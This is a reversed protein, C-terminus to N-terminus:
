ILSSLNIKENNDLEIIVGINKVFPLVSDSNCTQIDGQRQYTFSSDWNVFKGGDWVDIALFFFDNEPLSDIKPVLVVEVTEGSDVPYGIASVTQSNNVIWGEQDFFSFQESILNTREPNDFFRARFHVRQNTMDTNEYTFYLYQDFTANCQQFFSKSDSFVSFNNSSSSGSDIEIVTYYVVSCSIESKNFPDYLVNVTQNEGVIFGGDTIDQNDVSFIEADNLTDVQLVLNNLMIDSYFSVRVNYNRAGSFTNTLPFAVANQFVGQTEQLLSSESDLFTSTISSPVDDVPPLFPFDTTDLRIGLKFNSGQSDSLVSLKNKEIIEFDNEFDFSNNSNVGFIIEGNNKKEEATLIVKKIASPLVINETFFYAPINKHFRGTICNNDLDIKATTNITDLFNDDTIGPILFLANDYFGDFQSMQQQMLFLVIKMLFVSSTEGMLNANDQELFQVFSDLQAHTLIGKNLLDNHDILGLNKRNVKGEIIKSADIGEINASTLLGKTESQLDIKSPLGRHKHNDVLDKIQQEIPLLDRSTNDIASVSNNGTSIFGVLISNTAEVLNPSFFFSVSRNQATTQFVKAYVYFDQNPTLGNLITPVSTQAAIGNIIGIGESIFISIGDTETFGNRNIEWGNIVGNGVVSYLGFIQRDITLFRDVEHQVNIASSINDGFDFIALNLLPTFSAM